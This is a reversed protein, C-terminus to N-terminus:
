DNGSGPQDGSRVVAEAAQREKATLYTWTVLAIAGAISLPILVIETLLALGSVHYTGWSLPQASAVSASTAVLALSAALAVALRRLLSKIVDHLTAM